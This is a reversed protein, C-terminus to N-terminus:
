TGSREWARCCVAQGFSCACLELKGAQVLEGRQPVGPRGQRGPRALFRSGAQAPECPAAAQLVLLTLCCSQVDHAQLRLVAACRAGKVGACTGHLWGLLELAADRDHGPM